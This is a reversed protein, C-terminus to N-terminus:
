TMPESEVPSRMTSSALMGSGATIVSSPPTISSGLERFFYSSSRSFASPEVTPSTMCSPTTAM